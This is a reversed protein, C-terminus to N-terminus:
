RYTQTKRKVLGTNVAAEDAVTQLITQMTDPVQLLISM